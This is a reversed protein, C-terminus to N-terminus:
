KEHSVTDPKALRVVKHITRERCKGCTMLVGKEGKAKWRIGGIDWVSRTHGCPCIVNWERSEAEMSEGWSQPLILKFFRQIASM